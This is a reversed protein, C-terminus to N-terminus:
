SVEASMTRRSDAFGEDARKMMGRLMEQGEEMSKRWVNDGQENFRKIAAEFQTIAEDQREGHSVLISVTSFTDLM